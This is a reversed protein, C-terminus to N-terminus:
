SLAGMTRIDHAVLAGSTMKAYIRDDKTFLSMKMNQIPHNERGDRLLLFPCVNTKPTYLPRGTLTDNMDSNDSNDNMDSMKCGGM